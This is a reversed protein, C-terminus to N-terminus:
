KDPFYRLVTQAAWRREIFLASKPYLNKTINKMSQDPFFRKFYPILCKTVQNREEGLPPCKQTVKMMIKLFEHEKFGRNELLEALRDILKDVQSEFDTYNRKSLIYRLTDMTSPFTALNLTTVPLDSFKINECSTELLAVSELAPHRGILERLQTENIDSGLCEIFRLNQFSGHCILLNEFFGNSYSVDLIRLNPVGFLDKLQEPSEFSSRHLSVMQLNKLHHIGRLDTIFDPAFSVIIDFREGNETEIMDESYYFWFFADLDLVLSQIKHLHLNEFRESYVGHLNCDYISINLELGPEMQVRSSRYHIIKTVECFITDSLPAEFTIDLHRYRGGILCKAVVKSSLQLLSLVFM